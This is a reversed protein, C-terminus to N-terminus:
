PEMPLNFFGGSSLILFFRYRKILSYLGAMFFSSLM